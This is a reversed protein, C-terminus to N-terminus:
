GAWVFALSRSEDLLRSVTGALRESDNPKILYENAGAKIAELRHREGALTSFFVVPTV